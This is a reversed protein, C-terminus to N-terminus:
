QRIGEQLVHEVPSEDKITLSWICMIVAVVTAIEFPSTDRGIAGLHTQVVSLAIPTIFQALYMSASILPMITVTANRGAKQSATSIIFPIGSGAGIGVLISCIIGGPLNHFVVIVGNGIIFLVPTIYKTYKGTANRIRSYLLGGFFGCIDMLAMVVSIAGQSMNTSTMELAFNAPYIFFSIQLLFMSIIYPYFKKFISIRKGKDVQSSSSVNNNPLYLIILVVSLLGMLYVLFSLRWSSSALIGSLLTAISGGLQNMASSYGMMKDQKDRTYYYSILGTSLPMIIGVGVGVVARTVLIIYINSFLGAVCGGIVYMALGAILLKKTRFRTSLRPFILSTIFIFLAPISIIMQVLVPNIGKFHEVIVSLAPAVAAGAM